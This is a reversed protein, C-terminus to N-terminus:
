VINERFVHGSHKLTFYKVGGTIFGLFNIGERHIDVLRTKVENLKLGKAELWRKTRARVDGARGRRCTIVFDDAYQFM